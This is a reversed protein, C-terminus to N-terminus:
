GSPAAAPLQVTPPEVDLDLAIEAPNDPDVRVAVARQGSALQAAVAAPIAQRCRAEYPEVGDLFVRVSFVYDPRSQPSGGADALPQVDTIQGRGLLGATRREADTAAGPPRPDSNSGM